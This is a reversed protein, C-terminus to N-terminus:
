PTARRLFLFEAGAGIAVGLVYATLDPWNFTTGLILRGPLTSRVADIWPAHYLQSFEVAWSIGVSGLALQRTSTRDFVIGLGVFVVLAWLADGGYKNLFSPLPVFGSRWLLGAAIVLLTLIANRLRSRHPHSPTDLSKM